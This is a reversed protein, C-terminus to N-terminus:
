GRFSWADVVDFDFGIRMVGSLAGKTQRDTDLVMHVISQPLQQQISRLIEISADSWVYVGHVDFAQIHERYESIHAFNHVDDFYIYVTHMCPEDDQLYQRLVNQGCIPCYFSYRNISSQIISEM